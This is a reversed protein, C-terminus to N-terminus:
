ECHTRWWRAVSKRDWEKGSFTRLGQANLAAARNRSHCGESKAVKLGHRTAATHEALRAEHAEQSRETSVFTVSTKSWKGGGRGRFGRSNMWEAISVASRCGDAQALLMLANADDGGVHTILGVSVMSVAISATVDGFIPKANPRPPKKEPLPDRRVRAPLEVRELEDLLISFRPHALM